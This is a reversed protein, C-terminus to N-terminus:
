HEWPESNGFKWIGTIHREWPEILIVTVNRPVDFVLFFLGPKYEDAVLKHMFLTCQVRPFIFGAPM